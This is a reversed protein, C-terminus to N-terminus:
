MTCMNLVFNTHRQLLSGTLTRDSSDRMSRCSRVGLEFRSMRYSVFGLQCSQLASFWVRSADLVLM